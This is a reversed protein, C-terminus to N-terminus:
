YSVIDLKEVRERRTEEREERRREVVVELEDATEVGLAGHYESLPITKTEM